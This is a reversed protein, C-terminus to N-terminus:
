DLLKVRYEAVRIPSEDDNAPETAAPIMIKATITITTTVTIMYIM